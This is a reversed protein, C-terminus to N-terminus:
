QMCCGSKSSGSDLILFNNSSQKSYTELLKVVKEHGGQSALTLATAGDYASANKRAGRDILFKVLERHGNKAAQMLATFGQDTVNVNVGRDLLREVIELNGSESAEMLAAIAGFCDERDCGGVFGRQCLMRVMEVERTFLAWSLAGYGTKKSIDADKTFLVEAVDGHGYRFALSLATAGGACHEANIDAGADLLIQVMEKNGNTAAIMLATYGISNRIDVDIGEALLHEVEEKNGKGAAQMFARIVLENESIKEEVGSTESKKPQEMSQM